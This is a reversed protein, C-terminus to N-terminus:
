KPGSFVSRNCFRCSNVIANSFAFASPSDSRPNSMTHSIGRLREFPPPEPFVLRKTNARLHKPMTMHHLITPDHLIPICFHDKRFFVFYELLLEYFVFGSTEPSGSVVFGVLIAVVFIAFLFNHSLKAANSL